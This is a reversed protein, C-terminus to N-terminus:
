RVLRAGRAPRHAHQEFPPAFVSRSLRFTLLAAARLRLVRTRDIPRAFGCTGLVDWMGSAARLEIAGRLTGVALLAGDTAFSLCCAGGSGVGLPLTLVDHLSVGDLM